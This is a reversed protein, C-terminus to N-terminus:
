LFRWVSERGKTKKWGGYAKCLFYMFVLLSAYILPFMYGLGIHPKDGWGTGPPPPLPTSGPLSTRMYAKSLLTIYWGHTGYFFLPNNGFVLLINTDKRLLADIKPRKSLVNFVYLLLFNLSLTAFAFAPSPPYKVIYFFSRFSALYQNRHAHQPHQDPTDLCNTSLNGYQFLRTSVFLLAFVLSLSANLASVKAPSRLRLLARGYVVGFLVFPLWGVPPFSSMLGREICM